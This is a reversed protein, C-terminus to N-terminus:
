VRLTGQNAQHFDLSDRLDSECTWFSVSTVQPSGFIETFGLDVRSSAWNWQMPELAMRREVDYMVLPKVEKLCSWLIGAFGTELRSSCWNRCLLDLFTGHVGFPRLILTSERAEDSSTLWSEM